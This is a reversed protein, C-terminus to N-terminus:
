AWSFPRKRFFAMYITRLLFLSTISEGKFIPQQNMNDFFLFEKNREYAERTSWPRVNLKPVKNSTVFPELASLKAPHEADQVSWSTQCQMDSISNAHLVTNQEPCLSKLSRIKDTEFYLHSALVAFKPLMRPDTTMSQFHRMAFLWMQCWGTNFQAGPEIVRFELTLDSTQVPYHNDSIAHPRFSALLIDHLSGHRPLSVLSKICNACEELYRFHKFFTSLSLVVVDLSCLNQWISNRETQDFNRFARGSSVIDRLDREDRTSFGPCKLELLQVTDKDIKVLNSEIGGVVHLWIDYILELYNVIEEDCRVSTFKHLSGTLMGSRIGPIGALKEFARRFQPHEAIQRVGRKQNPSLLDELRHVQRTQHNKKHRLIEFFADSEIFVRNTACSDDAMM